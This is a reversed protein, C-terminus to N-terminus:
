RCYKIHLEKELIILSDPYAHDLLQKRPDDVVM